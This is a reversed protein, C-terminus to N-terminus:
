WGAPLAACREPDSCNLNSAQLNVNQWPLPPLFGPVRGYKSSSYVLASFGLSAYPLDSMIYYREGLRM